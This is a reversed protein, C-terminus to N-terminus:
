LVSQAGLASLDPKEVFYVLHAPCRCDSSGFRAAVLRAGPWSGVLRAWGCELREPGVAVWAEAVEAVERLYDVHWRLLKGQKLHRALRQRLGGLASGIYVYYGAPFLFDGLKGVVLHQPQDLRLLIAYTGIDM